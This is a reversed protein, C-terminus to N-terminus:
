DLWRTDDTVDDETGMIRDPGSSVVAYKLDGDRQTVRLRLPMSWADFCIRKKRYLQQVHEPISIVASVDYEGEQTPLPKAQDSSRGPDKEKLIMREIEWINGLTAGRPHAYYVKEEGFFYASCLVLVASPLLAYRILVHRSTYLGAAKIIEPLRRQRWLWRNTLCVGAVLLILGSVLLGQIPKHYVTSASLYGLHVFPVASPIKSYAIIKM